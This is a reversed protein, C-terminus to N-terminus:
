VACVPSKKSTLKKLYAFTNISVSFAAFSPFIPIAFPLVPFDTKQMNRSCFVNILPFKHLHTARTLVKGNPHYYEQVRGEFTKEAPFHIRIEKM